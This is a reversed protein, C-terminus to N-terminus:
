RSPTGNPASFGRTSPVLPRRVYLNDLSCGLAEAIVLAHYSSLFIRNRELASITTRNIGTKRALEQQTRVMARLRCEMVRNRYDRTVRGVLKKGAVEVGEARQRGRGNM